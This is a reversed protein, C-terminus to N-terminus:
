TAAHNFRGKLVLLVFGIVPVLTFWGLVEGFRGTIVYLNASALVWCFLALIVSSKPRFPFFGVSISLAFYAGALVYMARNFVQQDPEGFDSIALYTQISIVLLWLCTVLAVGIEIRTLIKSSM